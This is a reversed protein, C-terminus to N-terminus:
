YNTMLLGYNGDNRKYMVQVKGTDGDLYVFFDHGLLELQEAAEEEFMPVLDIKKRRVITHPTLDGTDEVIEETLDEELVVDVPPMDAWKEKGKPRRKSKYKHLQRAMRDVVIDIAAFFDEQKKEEVRFITGRENRITLQVVPQNSRGERQLELRADSINSL